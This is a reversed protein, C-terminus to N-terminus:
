LVWLLCSAVGESNLLDEVCCWPLMAALLWFAATWGQSFAVIREPNLFLVRLQRYHDTTPLLALGGSSVNYQPQYGHLTGRLSHMWCQMAMLQPPTATTDITLVQEQERARSM